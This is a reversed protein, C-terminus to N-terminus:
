AARRASLGLGGVVGVLLGTVGAVASAEDDALPMLLLVVLIVAVGLLDGEIERGRRLDRVDPIAWAAALGLGLGNGGLAIPITATAVEVAMGGAGAALALLAVPVLGHRQELLWGFVGIALLAAFAYGWNAYALPATILRWWDGDLPGVIAVESLRIAGGRALVSLVISAVLIAATAWPRSEPRIGPIEGPRLRPLSPAHPRRRRPKEAPRGEKDLKPARKRLRSGCYPCETIYPSVEAGCSKCIVFLDPGGSTVARDYSTM